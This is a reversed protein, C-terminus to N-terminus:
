RMLCTSKPEFLAKYFKLLETNIQKNNTIRKKSYSKAKFM